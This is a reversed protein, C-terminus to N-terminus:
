FGVKFIASKMGLGLIFSLCWFLNHSYWFFILIFKLLLAIFHVPFVALNLFMYITQMLLNRSDISSGVCWWAVHIYIALGFDFQLSLIDYYLVIIFHLKIIPNYSKNLYFITIINDGMLSNRCKKWFELKFSCKIM